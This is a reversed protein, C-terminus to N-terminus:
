WPTVSGCIIYAHESQDLGPPLLPVYVCVVRLVSFTMWARAARAMQPAKLAVDRGASSM